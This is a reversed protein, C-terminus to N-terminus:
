YIRVNIKQSFMFKKLNIISQETFHFINAAGLSIDNSVNPIKDLLFNDNSCEGLTFDTCFHEQLADTLPYTFFVALLSFRLLLKM